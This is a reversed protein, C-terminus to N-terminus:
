GRNLPNLGADNLVELLDIAKVTWHSHNLEHRSSQKHEAIDLQPEVDSVQIKQGDAGHVVHEMLVAPFDM